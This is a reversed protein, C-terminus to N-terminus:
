HVEFDWELVESTMTSDNDTRNYLDVDFLRNLNNGALDELRSEISITYQGKEWNFQPIFQWSSGDSSLRIAGKIETDGNKVMFVEQALIFDLPEKFYISLAQRSNAEPTKFNWDTIAPKVRDDAGVTYYKVYNEMLAVGEADRWSKSIILNYSHGREIAKGLLRNPGLDRKVRGPEIWLTLLTRDANWLEPTLELFARKITDTGNKVLFINKSSQGESMPASFRIYIKLLNEPLQDVSPYVDIVRADSIATTNVAEISKIINGGWWVEYTLSRDLPWYPKFTLTDGSADTNGLIPQKKHRIRVQLSDSVLKFHPSFNYVKITTIDKKLNEQVGVNLQANLNPLLFCVMVFVIAQKKIQLFLKPKYGVTM